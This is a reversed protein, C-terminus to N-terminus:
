QGVVINSSGGKGGKGGPLLQPIQFNGTGPAGLNFATAFALSFAGPGSANANASASSQAQNNRLGRNFAAQSFTILAAISLLKM